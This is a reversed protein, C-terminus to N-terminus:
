YTKGVIGLLGGDLANPYKKSFSASYNACYADFTSYFCGGIFSENKLIATCYDQNFLEPDLLLIDAYVGNGSILQTTDIIIYRKNAAEFDFAFRIAIDRISDNPLIYNLYNFLMSDLATDPDYKSISIDNPVGNLLEYIFVIKNKDVYDFIQLMKELFETEEYEISIWKYTIGNREAVLCARQEKGWLLMFGDANLIPKELTKTSNPEGFLKFGFEVFDLSNTARSFFPTLTILFVLTLALFRKM